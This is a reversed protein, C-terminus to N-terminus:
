ASSRHAAPKVGLKETSTLAVGGFIPFSSLDPYDSWPLDANHQPLFSLRVLGEAAIEPAMYAHWGRVPFTDDKPAVGETRGDFRMRRLISDAEPSNHLIAGGQQIGLIKSWHFSPCLFSPPRQPDNDGVHRLFMGSTFRRAADWVPLPKLQYMGSWEEDRFAVEWGVNLIQMPVSVYTRKPIEIAEVLPSAHPSAETVKLEGGVATKFYDLCLLLASTCSNVAVAYPAGTYDCLAAEFDEVVKFANM